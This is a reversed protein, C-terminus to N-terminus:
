SKRPDNTRELYEDVALAAERAAEDVVVNVDYHRAHLGALAACFVQLWVIQEQTM